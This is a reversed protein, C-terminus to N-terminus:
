PMQEEIIKINKKVEEINPQLKDAIKMERLSDDLRQLYYYSVGLNFHHEWSNEAKVGKKLVDIADKFKGQKMLQKGRWLCLRSLERRAMPNKPERHLSLSYDDIAPVLKNNLLATRGKDYPIHWATVPPRLSFYLLLTILVLAGALWRNRHPPRRDEPGLGLAGAALLGGVLGGIHGYNDIGNVIFGLILNIGLMIWLNNGFYTKAARPKRLSFYILSGLLGFIAGSAGVSMTYPFGIVSAMVGLVGALLYILWFRLGGFLREVVPGLQYLAVSNFFFHPFGQHLFIPTILRWTDGLWIRASDKAGLALLVRWDTTGGKFTALLFMLINAGLFLYTWRPKDYLRVREVREGSADQLDFHRRLLSDEAEWRGESYLPRISSNQVTWLAGVGTIESLLNLDKDDCASVIGIRFLGEPKRWTMMAMKVVDRLADVNMTEDALIMVRQLLPEERVLWCWRDTGEPTPQIEYGMSLLRPGLEQYIEPFVNM